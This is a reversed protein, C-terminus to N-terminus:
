FRVFPDLFRTFRGTLRLPADMVTLCICDEDADAVPRHDVHPDTMTFDGRDFHGREDSFGGALVLTAENGHHSHQPMAAGARIRLLKARGGSRVGVDLEELGRIVPRWPLIRGEGRVVHRLPAPLLAEDTAAESPPCAVRTPDFRIAAHHDAVEEPEDLRALVAELSGSEVPAPELAELLAGGIAEYERVRRRCRPCLALHAAVILSLAERTSGAAYDMLLEDDVHHRPVSAAMTEAM